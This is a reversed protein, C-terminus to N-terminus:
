ARWCEDPVPVGVHEFGALIIERVAGQIAREVVTSDAAGHGPVGCAPLVPDPELWLPVNAALLRPLREGLEARLTPDLAESALHAWGARAHDVEDRLHARHAARTLPTRAADIGLGLWVTALTENICCTGAVLLAAELREDECGFEPLPTEGIPLPELAGGAYREAVHLCVGSHRLEDAASLEILDLVIELAGVDRLLPLMKSFAVSIRAESRARRLWHRSLATRDADALTELSAEHKSLAEARFAERERRALFPALGSM